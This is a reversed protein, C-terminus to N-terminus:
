KAQRPDIAALRSPPVGFLERFRKNFTSLDGFGADFAIQSVPLQSTRLKVAARGTYLGDSRTAVWVEGMGGVGIVDVLEWAGLRAGTGAATSAAEADPRPGSETM